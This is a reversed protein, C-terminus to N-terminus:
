FLNMFDNLPANSPDEPPMTQLSVVPNLPAAPNAPDYPPIHLHSYLYTFKDNMESQVARIQNATDHHHKTMAEQALNWKNDISTQLSSFQHTMYQMMAAHDFTAAATRPARPHTPAAAAAAFTTDDPHGAANEDDVYRLTLNERDFIVGMRTDVNRVSIRHNGTNMELCEYGSLNTEYHELIRTIIWAYPLYKSKLDVTSMHFLILKSWHLPIRNKVAYLVQLELDTVLCHNGGRPFLVYTLFYHFMRDDINFIGATWLERDSSMGGGRARRAQAVQPHIRALSQYFSRKDYDAWQEDDPDYLTAGSPVLGLIESILSPPLKLKRGNITAHLTKGDSDLTSYFMRVLGPYYKGHSSILPELGQSRLVEQFNFCASPFSDLDGYKPTIVNKTQFHKEFREIQQPTLNKYFRPNIAHTSSAPKKGKSIEDTKRKTAM